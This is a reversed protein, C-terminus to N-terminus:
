RGAWRYRQGVTRRGEVVPQERDLEGRHALANIAHNAQDGTMGVIAMIEKATHWDHLLHAHARLHATTWGYGKDREPLARSSSEPAFIMAGGPGDRRGDWVVHEIM